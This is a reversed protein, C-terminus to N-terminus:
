DNKTTSAKKRKLIKAFRIITLVLFIAAFALIGVGAGVNDELTEIGFWVVLGIILAYLLIVAILILYRIGKPLKKNQSAEMGDELVIDILLDLIFDM